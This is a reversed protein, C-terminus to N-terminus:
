VVVARPDNKHTDGQIQMYYTSLLHQGYYFSEGQTQPVMWTALM